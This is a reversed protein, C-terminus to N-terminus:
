PKRLPIYFGEGVFIFDRVEDQLPIFPFILTLVDGTKMMVYNDDSFGVISTVDGTVSHTASLPRLIKSKTNQKLADFAINSNYWIEYTRTHPASETNRNLFFDKINVDTSHDVIILKAMDVFSREPETERIQLYYKGDKLALHPLPIHDRYENVKPMAGPFVWGRRVYENGNWFYLSPCSPPGGYYWQLFEDWQTDAPFDIVTANYDPDFANETEPFYIALGHSNPLQTGHFEAFVTNEIATMVDLAANQVDPDSVGTSVLEAFHYLDIHEPYYYEQSNARATVLEAKDSLTMMASAFDSINAALTDMMSLDIASQTTDGYNYSEGYRTVIVSGLDTATLTPSAVLDSLVTDYPWGDGPEVEESGVMVDAYDKIQYAVEVMGMLCADFGLLNIHTGISALASKVESMYLADGGSSDDWSVAKYRPRRLGTADAERWGDGHDWLILAYHNAPYNSIAWQVFDILTQPDGMNVERGGQGDGWDAIANEETPTMGNTILFRHAITWNGFSSSYGPTRDFQVVINVNSDSGVSAMELFDNIAAGELNNDGDLYVMFTWEASYVSPSFCLGFVFISIVVFFIRKKM